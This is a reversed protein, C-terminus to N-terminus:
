AAVVGPAVQGVDAVHPLAGSEAMMESAGVPKTPMMQTSPPSQPSQPMSGPPSADRDVHDMRQPEPTKPTHQIEDEAIFADVDAETPTLNKRSPLDLQLAAAMSEASDGNSLGQGCVPVHHIAQDAKLKTLLHQVARPSPAGASPPAPAGAIVVGAAVPVAGPLQEPLPEQEPEPEPEFPKHVNRLLWPDGGEAIALNLKSAEFEASRHRADREQRSVEVQAQLVQLDLNTRSLYLM